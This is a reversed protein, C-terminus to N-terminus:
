KEGSVKILSLAYEAAKKLDAIAVKEQRSHAGEYGCGIVVAPIGKANFINADSGGGGQIYEPKMGLVEAARKALKIPEDEENWRYTVYERQVDVGANAGMESAADEFVKTMHDIQVALKEENRSRAEAKVYVEDPVINRAKGGEIIGINATTEPDVRGLKMKSIAKSAAVIASIGNEPHIGAHAAKGKVKVNVTAHSPASVVIGGVPKETDFVYGISDPLIDAPDTYTAGFLGIEESISYLVQLSRFPIKDEIAANVAELIAAIGAKDDAGLITNGDTHIVGDTIIPEFGANSEVTDMHASFFLRPGKELGGIKTAILNGSNGNIKSGADDEKVEFGLAELKPRLYDAVKRENKSLSDIKVLDLFTSVLREQNIM